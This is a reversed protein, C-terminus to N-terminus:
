NEPYFMQTEKEMSLKIVKLGGTSSIRTYLNTIWNPRPNLHLGPVVPTLNNAFMAM